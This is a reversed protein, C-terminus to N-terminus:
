EDEDEQCNECGPHDPDMCHPHAMLARQHRRQHLSEARLDAIDDEDLEVIEATAFM